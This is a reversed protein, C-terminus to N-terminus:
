EFFSLLFSSASYPFSKQKANKKIMSLRCLSSTKETSRGVLSGVRELSSTLATENQRRNGWCKVMLFSRISDAASCHSISVQKTKRRVFKWRAGLKNKLEFLELTQVSVKSFTTPKKMEIKEKEKENENKKKKQFERTWSCLVCWICKFLNM